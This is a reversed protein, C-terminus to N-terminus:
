RKLNAILADGLLQGWAAQGKYNPHMPATGETAPNIDNLPLDPDGSLPAPTDSVAPPRASSTSAPSTM